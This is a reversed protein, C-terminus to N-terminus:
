RVCLFQNPFIISDNELIQVCAAQMGCLKDQFQYCNTFLERYNGRQVPVKLFLVCLHLGCNRM